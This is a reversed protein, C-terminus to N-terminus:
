ETKGKQLHNEITEVDHKKKLLRALILEDVTDASLIYHFYVTPSAQGHRQVRARSQDHQKLSWTLAWYIVHKARTLRIGESGTALNVILIRGGGAQWREHEDVAGTLRLPTEKFVAQVLESIVEVDRQFRTFIVVPESPDLEELVDRLADIRPQMDYNVVTGDDMTLQASTLLQQCRLLRTLLHSVIQEGEAPADGREGTAAYRILADDALLKYQAQVEPTLPVRYSRTVAEPLNAIVDVTRIFLTFDRIKEVLHELNRYGTVIRIHGRTYIDCYANQFDWWSGFLAPFPRRGKEIRPHLWRVAGYVREAGDSFPTGTMAVKTPIAACSKALTLSRVSDHAGLRHAEDAIAASFGYKELPLSAATEYNVVVVAQAGRQRLADLQKTKAASTGRDLVVLEFPTDGRYFAAYDARWVALASKPCLVLRLGSFQELYMLGFLTKGSGMGAYILAQNHPRTLAFDLMSLQHAWVDATTKSRLAPDFPVHDPPLYESLTPLTAM